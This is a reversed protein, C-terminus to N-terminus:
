RMQQHQTWFVDIFEDDGVPPPPSVAERVNELWNVVYGPLTHSPWEAFRVAEPAVSFRDTDVPTGPRATPRQYLWPLAVGALYNMVSRHNPQDVVDTREV